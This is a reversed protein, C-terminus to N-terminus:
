KASTKLLSEDMIGKLVPRIQSAASMLLDANADTYNGHIVLDVWDKSKSQWTTLVRKLDKVFMEDNRSKCFELLDSLGPDSKSKGKKTYKEYM